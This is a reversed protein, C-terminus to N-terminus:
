PGLLWLHLLTVGGATMLTLLVIGLAGRRQAPVTGSEFKAPQM